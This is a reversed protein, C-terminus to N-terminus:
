SQVILIRLHFHTPYPSILFFQPLTPDAVNRSCRCRTPYPKSAQLCGVSVKCSPVSELASQHGYSTGPLPIHTLDSINQNFAPLIVSSIRHRATLFPSHTSPSDAAGPTSVIRHIAQTPFQDITPFIQLIKSPSSPSTSPPKSAHLFCPVRAVYTVHPCCCARPHTM